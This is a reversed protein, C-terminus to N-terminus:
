FLLRLEARNNLREVLREVSCVAPESTRTFRTQVPDLNNDGYCFQIISNNSNRVTGDYKIQIDEALKIMRRQIYGSTATKMATDTIGERGTMAHFYFERPSLGKTFSSRIFGRSEYRMDDTYQAPDIPYHPLTRRNNSLLPHIRQGNLNQQGLLGTIQAINFYDGKAGSIVTKIFNNDKQLAKQAISMGTDRAGSLAYSVYIEKLREEQTQIETSKAKIFARNVAHNIEEQKTIICDGAGISFGFYLLWRVALFQVNNIFELCVDEGYEHFLLTIISSHSSSLNAKNIAGRKLVGKEIMVEPEAPDANNVGRFSFDSPLIMSFLLKGSYQHGCMDVKSEYDAPLEPLAMLIQFFRERSMPPRDSHTMLYSGLLADQVIVINAKSSQCSMINQKVSSLLRLEAETEPSAPCHLNMEDGDFDANFSKTISLNM